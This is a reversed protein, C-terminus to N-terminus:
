RPNNIREILCTFEHPQLLTQDNFKLLTYHESNKLASSLRLLITHVTPSNANIVQMIKGQDDFIIFRLHYANSVINLTNEDGWLCQDAGVNKGCRRIVNQFGRLSRVRELAPYDSSQDSTRAALTKYAHFMDDTQMRAVFARLEEVSLQNRGNGLARVICAYLCDGNGDTPIEEIQIKTIQRKRSPPSSGTIHLGPEADNPQLHRYTVMDFCRKCPEGQWTCVGTNITQCDCYYCRTLEQIEEERVLASM